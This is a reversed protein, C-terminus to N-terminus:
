RRGWIGTATVNLGAATKKYCTRWTTLKGEWVLLLGDYIKLKYGGPHFEAARIPALFFQPGCLGGPYQTSYRLGRFTRLSRDYM